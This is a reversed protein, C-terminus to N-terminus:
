RGLGARSQLRLAIALVLGPLVLWQALPALGTGVGPLVPMLESYGWSRLIAVNLWESLVTYGAGLATAVAAVAIFRWRAVPGARTVILALALATTGILVDGITCHVVAFAIERASGTTFITYLPLQVTEWALNLLAFVPVFRRALFRWTERCEYWHVRPSRDVPATPTASM